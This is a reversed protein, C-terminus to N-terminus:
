GSAILCVFIEGLSRGTSQRAIPAPWGRRASGPSRRWPGGLVVLLNQSGIGVVDSGGQCNGVEGEVAAFCLVAEIRQIAGQGERHLQIVLLLLSGGQM